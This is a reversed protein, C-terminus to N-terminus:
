GGIVDSYVDIFEDVDESNVFGDDTVDALEEGESYADWFLDLNNENAAKTEVHEWRWLSRTM